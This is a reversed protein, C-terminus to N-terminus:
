EMSVTSKGPKFGPFIRSAIYRFAKFLRGRGGEQFEDIIEVIEPTRLYGFSKHPNPKGDMEYDNFVYVDRPLLGRSNAQYDDKLTHDLAIRDRLDSMNVWSERIGEPVAPKFDKLGAAKRLASIRGVIVPLGLPSGITIFTHVQNKGAMESLVDYSVISGMSHAILLIRYGKYQELKRTLRNLIAERASCDRDVAPVCNEGYYKALDSFRHHIFKDTVNRFNISMDDNLFIRDIQNGIYVLFEKLLPSSEEAKLKGGRTYIEDLYLPDNRNTVDPDLLAPYIVDAWYAMDLPVDLKSKGYRAFGERISSLWWSKLLKEPPKNGLGHIGIIVSKM